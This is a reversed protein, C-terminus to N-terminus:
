FRVYMDGQLTLYHVALSSGFFSSGGRGFTVFDGVALLPIRLGRYRRHRKYETKM